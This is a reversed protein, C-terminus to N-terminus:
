ARGEALGLRERIDKPRKATRHRAYDAIECIVDLAIEDLESALMQVKLHALQGEHNEILARLFTNLTEAQQESTSQAFSQALNTAPVAILFHPTKSDEHAM